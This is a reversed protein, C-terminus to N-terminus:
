CKGEWYIREMEISSNIWDSQQGLVHLLSEKKSKHSTSECVATVFPVKLVSLYKKVSFSSFFNGNQHFCM